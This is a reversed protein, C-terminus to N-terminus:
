SRWWRAARVPRERRRWSLTPSSTEWPRSAPPTGSARSTQTMSGIVLDARPASLEDYREILATLAPAPTVGAQSNPRNEITKVALDRTDRRLVVDIVTFLRGRTDAMTVWKGDIECVFEDNTHGAIVVDVVDDLRAAIEAVPGTLGSGCDSQGGDSTGGEHLLVVIAEIGQERLSPVLANVTQAEDAFTLGEVEAKSVITPTGELTLGIFAVGVGEYERVAYPPFITAGTSDDIVNAALLEFDAGSFPDGDLDGDVPHPGGQQMRRLEALGEDFEHNGVGNFDLGM